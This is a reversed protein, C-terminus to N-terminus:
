CDMNTLFYSIFLYIVLYYQYITNDHYRSMTNHQRPLLLHGTSSVASRSWSSSHYHVCLWHVSYLPGSIVDDFLLILDNLPWDNDADDNWLASRWIYVNTELTSSESGLQWQLSVRVRNEM